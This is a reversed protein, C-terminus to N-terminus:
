RAEVVGRDQEQLGPAKVRVRGNGGGDGDKEENEGAKGRWGVRLDDVGRGGWGGDTDVMELVEECGYRGGQGGGGAWFFSRYELVTGTFRWGMVGRRVVGCFVGVGDLVLVPRYEPALYGLAEDVAQKWAPEEWIPQTTTTTSSSLTTGPSAGTWLASHILQISLSSSLHRLPLRPKEVTLTLITKLNLRPDRRPQAPFTKLFERSNSDISTCRYIGESITAFGEPPFLTPIEAAGKDKHGEDKEREREKEKDPTGAAAIRGSADRQAHQHQHSHIFQSTTPTTPSTSPPPPARTFSM